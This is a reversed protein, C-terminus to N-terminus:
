RWPLWSVFIYMCVSLSYFPLQSVEGPEQRHSHHSITDNAKKEEVVPEPRPPDRHVFVARDTDTAVIYLMVTIKLAMYQCITHTHMHVHICCVKQLRM